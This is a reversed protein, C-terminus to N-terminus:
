KSTGKRYEAGSYEQLPEDIVVPEVPASYSHDSAQQCTNQHVDKGEAPLRRDPLSLEFHELTKLCDPSHIVTNAICQL